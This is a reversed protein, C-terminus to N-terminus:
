GTLTDTLTKTPGMSYRTGVQSHREEGEEGEGEEGEGEEGEKITRRIEM